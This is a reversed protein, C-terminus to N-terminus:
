PQGILIPRHAASSLGIHTQTAACNIWLDNTLFGEMFIAKEKLHLASGKMMIKRSKRGYIGLFSFYENRDFFTM